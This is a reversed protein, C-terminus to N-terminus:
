KQVEAKQKILLFVRFSLPFAVGSEETFASQMCLAASCTEMVDSRVSNIHWLIEWATLPVRSLSFPARSVGQLLAPTHQSLVSAVRPKKPKGLLSM